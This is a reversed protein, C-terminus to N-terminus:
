MFYGIMDSVYSLEDKFYKLFKKAMKESVFSFVSPYDARVVKFGSDTSVISYDLLVEDGDEVEVKSAIADIEADRYEDRVRLLVGLIDLADNYDDSSDLYDDYAEQVDETVEYGDLEKDIDVEKISDDKVSSKEECKCEKQKKTSRKTETKDSSKKSSKEKKDEKNKEVYKEYDPNSEIDYGYYTSYGNEYPVVATGDKLNCNILVKIISDSTGLEKLIKKMKDLDNSDWIFYTLKEKKM